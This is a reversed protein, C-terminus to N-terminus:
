GAALDSATNAFIYGGVLILIFPTVRHAHKDIVSVVSPHSVAYTGILVFLAAMALLTMVILSDAAPMSDAFLAALTVITDAGNGLQTLMTALFANRGFQPEADTERNAGNRFLRGIGILGLTVPVIGLLGLYEVPATGAAGGIVFSALGIVLAGAAFGAIVASRRDRFTSLLVVLLTLNDLNTAAYASAAVAIVTLM